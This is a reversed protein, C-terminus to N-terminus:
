KRSLPGASITGADDGTIISWSAVLLHHVTLQYLRLVAMRRAPPPVDQPSPVQRYHQEANRAGTLRPSCMM